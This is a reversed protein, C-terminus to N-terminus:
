IQVKVTEFRKPIILRTEPYVKKMLKKFKSMNQRNGHMAVAIKPQFDSITALAVEPSCTRATGTPVFAIDACKDVQRWYGSDGGHFVKVSGLNILYQNLPGVHVGRLAEIEYNGITYKTFDSGSKVATLKNAPIKGELEEATIGDAIINADTQEFIDLTVSATFHDWHNHTFFLLELDTIMRIEEQSLGKGPDIAIAVSNARLIIGSYGLFLFAIENEGIDLSFLSEISRVNKTDNM